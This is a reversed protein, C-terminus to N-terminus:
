VEQGYRPPLTTWGDLDPAEIRTADFRGQDKTRHEAGHAVAHVTFFIGPFRYTKDMFPLDVQESEDMAEAISVLEDSSEAM